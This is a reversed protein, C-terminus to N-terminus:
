ALAGQDRPPFWRDRLRLAPVEILASMALGLAFSGAIYVSTELGFSPMGVLHKFVSRGWIAMPLHWLYTSYSRAGLTAAIAVIRSEPLEILLMWLM